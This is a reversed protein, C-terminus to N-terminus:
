LSSLLASSQGSANGRLLSSAPSLALTRTPRTLITAYFQKCAAVLAAALTWASCLLSGAIPGPITKQVLVATPTRRRSHNAESERPQRRAAQKIILRGTLARSGEM